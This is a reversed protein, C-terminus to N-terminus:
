EYKGQEKPRNEKKFKDRSELAFTRINNVMKSNIPAFEKFRPGLFDIGMPHGPPDLPDTFLLGNLVEGLRRHIGLPSPDNPLDLVESVYTRFRDGVLIRPYGACKELAVAKAKAATHVHDLILLGPAIDIGARIPSKMALHNVVQLTTAVVLDSLAKMPAAEVGELLTELFVCDSFGTTAVRVKGFLEQLKREAPSDTRDARHTSAIADLVIKPGTLLSRRRNVLVRFMELTETKSPPPLVDTAILEQSYGLLDLFSVAWLGYRAGDEPVGFDVKRDGLGRSNAKIRRREDRARSQKGM